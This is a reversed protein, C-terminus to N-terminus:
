STEAERSSTVRVEKNTEGVAEKLLDGTTESARNWGLSRPALRHCRFHTVSSSEITSEKRWFSCEPPCGGLILM